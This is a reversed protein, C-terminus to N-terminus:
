NNGGKTRHFLNEQRFDKLFSNFESESLFQMAYYLAPNETYYDHFFHNGMDFVFRFEFNHHGHGSLILDVKRSVGVGACTELFKQNLGKSIGNALTFDVEGSKFFPTDTM